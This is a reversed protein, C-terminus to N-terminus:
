ERHWIPSSIDRSFYRQPETQLHHPQRCQLHTVVTLAPLPGVQQPVHKGWVVSPQWEPEFSGATGCLSLFVDPKVWSTDGSCSSFSQSQIGLELVESILDTTEQLTETASSYCSQDQLFAQAQIYNNRYSLRQVGYLNDLGTQSEWTQTDRFLPLPSMPHCQESDSMM